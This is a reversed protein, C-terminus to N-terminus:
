SFRDIGTRIFLEQVHRATSHHHPEVLAARQSDWNAVAGCHASQGFARRQFLKEGGGRAKPPKTISCSGAQLSIICSGFWLLVLACDSAAAEAPRAAFAEVPRVASAETARQRRKVLAQSHAEVLPHGVVQANVRMPLYHAARMVERAAAAV